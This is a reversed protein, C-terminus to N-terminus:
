DEGATKGPTPWNVRTQSYSRGPVIRYVEGGASVLRLVGTMDRRVKGSM